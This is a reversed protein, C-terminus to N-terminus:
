TGIAGRLVGRYVGDSVVDVCWWETGHKLSRRREVQDCPPEM